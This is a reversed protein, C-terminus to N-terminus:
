SMCGSCLYAWVVWYLVFSPIAGLIMGGGVSRWGRVLLFALALVCGFAVLGKEFQASNSYIFVVLLVVDILMGLAAQAGAHDYIYQVM